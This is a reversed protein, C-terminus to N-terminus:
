EEPDGCSRTHDIGKVAARECADDVSLVQKTKHEDVTEVRSATIIVRKFCPSVCIAYEPWCFEQCFIDWVGPDKHIAVVGVDRVRLGHGSCTNLIM